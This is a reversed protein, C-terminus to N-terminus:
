KSRIVINNYNILFQTFWFNFLEVLFKFNNVIVCLIRPVCLIMIKDPFVAM